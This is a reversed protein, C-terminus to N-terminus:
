GVGWDHFRVRELEGEISEITPPNPRVKGLRENNKSNLAIL